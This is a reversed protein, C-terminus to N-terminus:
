FLSFVTKVVKNNDEDTLYFQFKVYYDLLSPIEINKLNTKNDQVFNDSYLYEYQFYWGSGLNWKM